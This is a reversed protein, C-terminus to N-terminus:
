EKLMELGAWYDFPASGSATLEVSAGDLVQYPSNGTEAIGNVKVSVTWGWYYKNNINQISYFIKLIATIIMSKSMAITFKNQQEAISFLLPM